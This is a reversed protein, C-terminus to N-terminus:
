CVPQKVHVAAPFARAAHSVTLQTSTGNRFVEAESRVYPDGFVFVGGNPLAVSAHHSRPNYLRGVSKWVDSDAGLKYVTDVQGL